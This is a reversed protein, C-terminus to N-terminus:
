GQPRPAPAAVFTLQQQAGNEEAKGILDRFKSSVKRLRADWTPDPTVGVIEYHYTTLTYAMAFPEFLAAMFAWAGVFALVVALITFVTGVGTSGFALGILGAPVLFVLFLVFGLVKGLVYIKAATILIPKYCQAYLLVGHRASNWVNEEGRYISYSLIAEDVYTLSRTMIQTVVNMLSKAAGPLPLWSAIRLVKRQLSRLAGTVLSDLVFLMSVDKFKEKVIKQGYQFQNMGDPLTGGKLLETMAAIHAGKVMYLLYRKAWKTLGGFVLTGILVLVVPVVPIKLVAGTLYALGGFIGFWILSVVFFAAYVAVNVGIYPLTKTILSVATSWYSVTQNSM